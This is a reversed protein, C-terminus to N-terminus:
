MITKDSIPCQSKRYEDIRKTVEEIVKGIEKDRFIGLLYFVPELEARIGENEFYIDDLVGMAAEILIPTHKIEALLDQCEMLAKDRPTM